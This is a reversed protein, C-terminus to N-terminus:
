EHPFHHLEINGRYAETELKNPVEIYGTHRHTHTRAAADLKTALEVPLHQQKNMSLKKKGEKSYLFFPVCNCSSLNNRYMIKGKYKVGM